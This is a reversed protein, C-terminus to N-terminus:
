RGSFAKAFSEIVFDVEAETTWRGLSLRITSKADPESLGIARLVPSGSMEGSGCASGASMGLHSTEALIEAMPHGPFTLSLAHPLHHEPHSNLHFPPSVRKLGELLRSRLKYIPSSRQGLESHQRMEATSIECAEGLGVIGPVNLTGARLTREQGGGFTLPDLSVRPNKQRIFLSGVGKPGYLKHSAFSILDVPVQSLDMPIKGVAQTADSHFYIKNQHTWEAIESIAQITGLENHAWHLSLLRTASTKAERIQDLTVQGWRNPKLYTVSLRSGLEEQLYTLPALVSKHEIQSTLVHILPRNLAPPSNQHDSLRSASLESDSLEPAERLWRRILGIIAWNNSETAGSTFFIESPHANLLQGVQTRAKEVARSAAWGWSHDQSSPNGFVQTFYPLMKELVRPDVPTTAQYDLYLKM